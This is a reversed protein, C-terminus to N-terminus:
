YCKWPCTDNPRREILEFETLLSEDGFHIANHTRHRTAIVYEPDMLFETHNALDKITIPNMHHIIIKESAAFPHDPDALDCGLDRTIIQNRFRRWENSNYFRQNFAREWGFTEEGIKGGLKLYRYREIFTPIQILESYTRIM